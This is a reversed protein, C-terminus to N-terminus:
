IFKLVQASSSSSPNDISHSFIMLQYLNLLTLLASAAHGAPIIGDMRHMSSIGLRKRKPVARQERDDTPQVLDTIM